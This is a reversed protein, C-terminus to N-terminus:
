KQPERSKWLHSPSCAITQEQGRPVNRCLKQYKQLGQHSKSNNFSLPAWCHQASGPDPAQGAMPDSDIERWLFSPLTPLLPFSVHGLSSQLKWVKWIRISGSWGKKQFPQLPFRNTPPPAESSERVFYSKPMRRISYDGEEFKDGTEFM